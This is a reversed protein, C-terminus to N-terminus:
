VSRVSGDSYFTWKQWAEDSCDWLQLRTGSASNGDVIDICRHSQFGVIRGSKVVTPAAASRSSSSGSSSFGSSSSSGS